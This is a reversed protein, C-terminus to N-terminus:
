LRRRGRAAAAQGEAEAADAAENLAITEDEIRQSEVLHENLARTQVSIELADLKEVIHEQYWDMAEIYDRM